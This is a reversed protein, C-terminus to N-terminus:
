TCYVERHFVGCIELMKRWCLPFLMLRKIGGAREWVGLCPSVIPLQSGPQLSFNLRATFGFCHLSRVTVFCLKISFLSHSITFPFSFFFFSLSTAPFLSLEQRRAATTPGEGDAKGAAPTCPQRPSRPSSHGLCWLHSCSPGWGWSWGQLCRCAQEASLSLQSFSGVPESPVPLLLSFCYSHSMGSAVM